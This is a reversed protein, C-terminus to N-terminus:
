DAAWCAAMLAASLLQSDARPGTQAFANWVPPVISPILAEIQRSSSLVARSSASFPMVGASATSFDVSLGLGLSRDQYVVGSPERMAIISVWPSSVPPATMAHTMM